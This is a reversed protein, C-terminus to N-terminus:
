NLMTATNTLSHKKKKKDYCCYLYSSWVFGGTHRKQLLRTPVGDTGVLSAFRAAAELSHVLVISGLREIFFFLSSASSKRQLFMEPM